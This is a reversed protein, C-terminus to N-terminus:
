FFYTIGMTSLLHGGLIIDDENQGIADDDDFVFSLGVASSLAVNTVLFLRIKLGGSLHFAINDNGDDVVGLGGGVSLDAVEGGHIGYWGQAGLGFATDNGASLGFIGDVHFAGADYTVSVGAPGTLMAQAGVGVGEAQASAAPLALLILVSALLTITKM